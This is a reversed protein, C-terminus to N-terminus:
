SVPSVILSNKVTLLTTAKTHARDGDKGGVVVVRLVAWYDVSEFDSTIYILMCFPLIWSSLLSCYIASHFCDLSWLCIWTRRTMGLYPHPYLQLHDVAWSVDGTSQLSPKPLPQNRADAGYITTGRYPTFHVRMSVNSRGSFRQFEYVGGGTGGNVVYAYNLLWGSTGMPHM